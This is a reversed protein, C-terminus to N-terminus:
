DMSVRGRAQKITGRQKKSQLRREKAGKSPKTPRRKRPVHLAERILAALRERADARNREQSRHTRADIIIVGEQTARHGAL